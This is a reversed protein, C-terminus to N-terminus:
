LVCCSQDRHASHDEIEGNGDVFEAGEMVASERNLWLGRFGQKNERSPPDRVSSQNAGVAGEFTKSHFVGDVRRVRVWPVKLLRPTSYGM